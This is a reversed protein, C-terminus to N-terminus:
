ALLQLAFSLLFMIVFISFCLKAVRASEDAINTFGFVAAILGVVLFILTWVFM